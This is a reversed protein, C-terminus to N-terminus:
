PMGGLAVATAQGVTYDASVALAQEQPMDEVPRHVHPEGSWWGRAAV